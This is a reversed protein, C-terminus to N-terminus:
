ILSGNSGARRERDESGPDLVGASSAVFSVIVVLRMDIV